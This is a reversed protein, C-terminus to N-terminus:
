RYQSPAQHHNQARRKARTVDTPEKIKRRPLRYRTAHGICQLGISLSLVDDDHWGPAAEARGSDTWIMNECEAVTHPCSIEVGAGEERCRRIAGGLVSLLADRNGTTTQWGLAMTTRQERENFIEREYIRAKPGGSLGRRKLLEILGMDKNMEPVIMCNGYYQALRWVKEELVDIEWRCGLRYRKVPPAIRAVERPPHWEGNLPDLYGRRLVRVSHFDPNGGAVQSEGTMTDAALLYYHGEIPQEWIHYVGGEEVPCDRFVAQHDASLDIAGVRRRSVADAAQQKLADLGARDYRPRGSQLFAEDENSPYEQKFMEEDGDCESEITDRRYQIQELVLDYTEILRKEEATLDKQLAKKESPTLDVWSDEFEFWAAFVKIFGSGRLGTKYDELSVAKQYRSHFEGMAGQATSELIVVTGPERPVCALLGSLVKAANAIGNARWRGLETAIVFHYMGSRGADPDNATEKTIESGNGFEARDAYVKMGGKAWECTDSAEFVELQGWLNAVQKYKGGIIKGKIADPSSALHHVQLGTSVTSAGKQRPKLIILRCAIGNAMCYTYAENVRQQLINLKPRELKGSKKVIKVCTEFWVGFRRRALAMVMNTASEGSIPEGRGIARAKRTGPRKRPAPPPQVTPPM